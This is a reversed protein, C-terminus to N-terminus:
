RYQRASGLEPVANAYVRRFAFVATFSAAASLTVVGSVMEVSWRIPEAAGVALLQGSWLLAPVLAALVLEQIRADAGFHRLGLLILDGLAGALVATVAILANPFNALVLALTALSSVLFLVTGPGALNARILYTLPVVVVLSTLVYSALGASAISEAAIHEASGEPFHGVTHTSEDALFGSLFILAFAVIATMGTVAMISPLRVLLSSPAGRLRHARVPGSLLLAGGSFLALHTPSMLADIGFEVRFIQHWIMDAAGGAAFVAAGILARAYGAPVVALRDGSRRVAARRCIVALWGILTALSGYLLAHWPTFFSDPLGLVHARGDLYVAAVILLGLVASVFDETVSSYVALSPATPRGTLPGKGSIVM